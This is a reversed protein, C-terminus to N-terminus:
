WNKMGLNLADVVKELWVVLVVKYGHQTADGGAGGLADARRNRYKSKKKEVNVISTRNESWIGM